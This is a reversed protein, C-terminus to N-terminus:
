FNPEERADGATAERHERALEQSVWQHPGMPDPQLVQSGLAYLKDLTDGKRRSRYQDRAWTRSQLLEEQSSSAAAPGAQQCQWSCRRASLDPSARSTYALSLTHSFNSRCAHSLSVRRYVKYQDHQKTKVQKTFLIAHDFLYVQIEGDRKNLAGKYIMERGEEKLRLNQGEILVIFPIFSAFHCVVEEGPKFLLQQDLQILNFRNETKGSETNVKALFEKVLTVVQPLLIKDPSDDPTHKLVANLLLPYRAM